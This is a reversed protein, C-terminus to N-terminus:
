REMIAMGRDLVRRDSAWAEFCVNEDTQWISFRLTDGPFVVGSFRCSLRKLAKGTARMISHGAIGYSALGQLIPRDFGAAAAVVPDSHLPNWDGSLRYILAARASIPVTIEHDPARDPTAAAEPAPSPPGGYGGDGRLLLTQRITAYLTDDAADRVAREVVLIAGKGPGRDHLSAVKPTAIVDAAPPLPAHFLVDQESHVLKVFDVGFAADRIWMGPTSLTVAMTPLVKLRTELLYDLDGEDLPDEGLGLGLAYLIADRPAYSQRIEPFDHNLLRDPDFAM